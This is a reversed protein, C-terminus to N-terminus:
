PNLRCSNAQLPNNLLFFDIKNRGDICQYNLLLLFFVLKSIDEYEFQYEEVVKAEVEEMSTNMLLM